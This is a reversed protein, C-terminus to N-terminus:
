GVISSYTPSARGKQSNQSPWVNHEYVSKALKNEKMLALLRLQISGEIGATNDNKTVPGIKQFKQLDLIVNMKTSYDSKDLIVVANSKNAKTIIIDSNNRLSKIAQFCKRHMTFNTMDIPTGCFSHALDTLKAKLASHSEKSKSSHHFLQEMLVEFEAFIKERKIDSPPLYYLDM